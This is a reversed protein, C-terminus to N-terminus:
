DKSTTPIVLLPVYKQKKLNKEKEEQFKQLWRKM